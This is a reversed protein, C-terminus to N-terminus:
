IYYQHLNPPPTLVDRLPEKFISFSYVFFHSQLRTVWTFANFNIGYEFCSYLKKNSKDFSNESPNSNEDEAKEVAYSKLTSYYGIFMDCSKLAFVAILLM